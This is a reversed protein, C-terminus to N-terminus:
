FKLDDFDDFLSLNQGEEKEGKEQAARNDEELSRVLSDFNAEHAFPDEEAIDQIKEPTNKEILDDLSLSEEKPFIMEPEFAEEEEDKQTIGYIPSIVTGLISGNKVTKKKKTNVVPAFSEDKASEENMVGYIPSIVKTFEYEQKPKREKIAPTKKPAPEKLEDVSLMTRSEKKLVEKRIPEEEKEKLSVPKAKDPLVVNSVPPLKVEEGKTEETEEEIEVEDFLSDILKQFLNKKAM